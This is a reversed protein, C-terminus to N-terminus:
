LHQSAEYKKVLPDLPGKGGLNKLIRSNEPFFVGTKIVFSRQPGRVLIRSRGRNKTGKQISQTQQSASPSKFNQSSFRFVHCLNFCLVKKSSHFTGMFRKRTYLTVPDIFYLCIHLVYESFNSVRSIFFYFHCSRSETGSSLWSM